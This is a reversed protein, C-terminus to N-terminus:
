EDPLDEGYSPNKPFKIERNMQTVFDAMEQIEGLNMEGLEAEIQKEQVVTLLDFSGFTNQWSPSSQLSKLKLGISLDFDKSRNLHLSEALLQSFIPPNQALAGNEQLLIKVMSAIFPIFTPHVAIEAIICVGLNVAPFSICTSFAISNLLEIEANFFTTFVKKQRIRSLMINSLVGLRETDKFSEIHLLKLPTIQLVLLHSVHTSSLYVLDEETPFQAVKPVIKSSITIKERLYKGQPNKRLYILASINTAVAVSGAVWMLLLPVPIATNEAVILHISDQSTSTDTIVQLTITFSGAQTTNALCNIQTDNSTLTGFTLRIAAKDAIQYVDYTAGAGGQVSWNVWVQQDMIAALENNALPTIVPATSGGSAQASAPRTFQAAPLSSERLAVGLPLFVALAIFFLLFYKKLEKRPM